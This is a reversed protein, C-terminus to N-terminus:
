LIFNSIGGFGPLPSPFFIAGTLEVWPEVGISWDMVGSLFELGYFIRHRSQVLGKWARAFIPRKQSPVIYKMQIIENNIDVTFIVVMVTNDTVKCCQEFKETVTQNYKLRDKAHFQCLVTRSNITSTSLLSTQRFSCHTNSYYFSFLTSSSLCCLLLCVLYRYSLSPTAGALHNQWTGTAHLSATSCDEEEQKDRRWFYVM